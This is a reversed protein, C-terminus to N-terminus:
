PEDDEADVRPTPRGLPAGSVKEGETMALTHKIKLNADMFVVEKESISTVRFRGSLLDGRQVSLIEKNNKDQLLATDVHTRTGIIGVYSYNPTPAPAVSLQLVNSYASGNSTQVKIQRVGPNAIIAAAVTTTMQQPGKYKTPLERSDVFVRMDPTFRDGSLELTFDATRAYVNSPNINALLVPPTPTPTSPPTVSAAPAVPKEVYAFINRKPEPVTLGSGPTVPPIEQMYSIDALQPEASNSNVSNVARPPASRGLTSSTPSPRPTVTPTSKGFGIFTWWLFIIAILGLIAAWILKKREGAKSFDALEM